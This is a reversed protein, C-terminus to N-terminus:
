FYEYKLLNNETQRLSSRFVFKCEGNTSNLKDMKYKTITNIETPAISTKEATAITSQQYISCTSIHLKPIRCMACLRSSWKLTGKSMYM